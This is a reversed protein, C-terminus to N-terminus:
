QGSIYGLLNLVLKIIRSLNFYIHDTFGSRDSICLLAQSFLVIYVDDPHMSLPRRECVPLRHSAAEKEKAPFVTGPFLAGPTVTCLSM